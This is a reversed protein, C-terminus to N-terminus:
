ASLLDVNKVTMSEFMNAMHEYDRAVGTLMEVTEQDCFNAALSRLKTAHKRYRAATEADNSM